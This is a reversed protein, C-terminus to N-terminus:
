HMEPVSIYKERLRVLEGNTEMQDISANVMDRLMRGSENRTFLMYISTPPMEPIPRYVLGQRDLYPEGVSSFGALIEINEVFLDFQGQQLRALLHDYSYIGLSIVQQEELGYYQYNYGLIGGVRYNALDQQRHITPAPQRSQLYFYYPTTHSYARSFWYHQQREDSETANLLMLYKGEQVGLLCRKWPLLELSYELGYGNLIIDILEVAFGGPKESKIGHHREFYVFPPWESIDDCIRVPGTSVDASVKGAILLCLLLIRCHKLIGM